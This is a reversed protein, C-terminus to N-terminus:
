KRDPYKLVKSRRGDLGGNMRKVSVVSAVNPSQFRNM